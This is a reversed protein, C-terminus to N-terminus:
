HYPGREVDCEYKKQDRCATPASLLRSVSKAWAGAVGAQHARRLAASLDGVQLQGQGGKEVVGLKALDYVQKPSLGLWRALVYRPVAFDALEDRHPSLM